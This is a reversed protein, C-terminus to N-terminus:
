SFDAVVQNRGAEKAQYMASDVRKLISSKTENHRYIVVGASITVSNVQPFSHHAISEQLQKAKEFAHDQHTNPLLILFEEGGWRGFMDTQRLQHNVLDCLEKLVTDGVDHGYTDNIKKFYDLDFMILAFTEEYRNARLIEDDLHNTMKHRNLIGTLEDTTALTNLKEEMTIRSTIDQSTSVFHTIDDQANLLPTITQEEHYLEGNKKKNIIVGRYTRKDLITEWLQAFFADTHEGSKLMSIKQGILETSRYGTHVIVAENVYTLVGEIDTIRVMEDTQEVAQSLLAVKSKSNVLDTIDVITGLGAYAGNHQITQTSIRFTRASGNKHKLIIDKYYAPFHEGQLRKLAAEKVAEKQSADIIDWPQLQYLEEKTYGLMNLLSDNAYIYYEQYIFVGLLPSESVKKFKYESEQLQVFKQKEKTIDFVQGVLATPIGEDNFYAQGSGKVYAIDGNKQYIAHEVDYPTGKDIALTICKQLLIQDKKDLYSMFKEYSPEFAGPEEGFIRFVEDSWQVTQTTMDWKWDGVHAIKQTENLRQREIKMQKELIHEVYVPKYSLLIEDNELHILTFFRTGIEDYGDFLPAIHSEGMKTLYVQQLRDYLGIHQADDFLVDITKDLLFSKALNFTAETKENVDVILFKTDIYRFIVVNEPLLSIDLHLTHKNKGLM